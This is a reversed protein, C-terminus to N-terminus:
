PCFRGRSLSNPMQYPRITTGSPLFARSLLDRIHSAQASPQTSSYARRRSVAQRMSALSGLVLGFPNQTCLQQPKKCVSSGTEPSILDSSGTDIIMTVTQPPSGLGVNVLPLPGTKNSNFHAIQVEVIGSSLTSNGGLSASLVKSAFVSAFLLLTAKATM